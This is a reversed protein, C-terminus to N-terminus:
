KDIIIDSKKESKNVIGRLYLKTQSPFTNAYITIPKIQEKQRGNSDFRVKIENAQGPQVPEKPWIPVTCGCTSQVDTILLPVKGVNKFRYHHVIITGEEVTGFDYDTEELQLKPVNITDQPKNATVPNRIIESNSFKDDLKVEQLKADSVDDSNKCSFFFAVGILLSWIFKM